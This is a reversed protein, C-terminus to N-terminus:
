TPVLVGTELVEVRGIVVTQEKFGTVEEPREAEFTQIGPPEYMLFRQYVNQFPFEVVHEGELNSFFEELSAPDYFDVEMGELKPIRDTVPVMDAHGARSDTRYDPTRLARHRSDVATGGPYASRDARVLQPHATTYALRASGTPVSPTLRRNAADGNLTLLLDGFRVHNPVLTFDTTPETPTWVTPVELDSSRGAVTVSTGTPAQYEAGFYRWVEAFGGHYEDYPEVKGRLTARATGTLARNYTRKADRLAQTNLNGYAHLPKHIIWEGGRVDKYAMVLRYFGAPPTFVMYRDVWASAKAEVGAAGYIGGEYGPPIWAEGEDNYLSVYFPKPAPHASTAESALPADDHKIWTAVTQQTLPKVNIERLIFGIDGLFSDEESVFVYGQNVEAGDPDKDDPVLEGSETARVNSLTWSVNAHTEIAQAYRGTWDIGTFIWMLDRSGTAGLRRYVALTGGPAGAGTAVMEVYVDSTSTLGTTIDRSQYLAGDAKYVSVHVAGAATLRAVALDQGATTTKIRLMDAAALASLQYRALVGLATRSGADVTVSGAVESSHLTTGTKYPVDKQKLPEVLPSTSVTSIPYGSTTVAVDDYDFTWKARPDNLHIGGYRVRLLLRNTLNLGSITRFARRTTNIGVLVTATAGSGGAGAIVIELDLLAGNAVNHGILVQPQALSGNANLVQFYLHSYGASAYQAIVRAVVTGAADLIDFVTVQTASYSPGRTFRVLVREALKTRTPTYDKYAYAAVWASTHDSRSRYVYAGNVTTAAVVESQINTNVINRFATFGPNLAGTEHNAFDLPPDSTVLQGAATPPAPGVVVVSGTPYPVAPDTTAEAYARSGKAPFVFKRPAGEFGHLALNYISMSLNRGNGSLYAMVRLDTGPTTTDYILDAGSGTPGVKLQFDVEGNAALTKTWTSANIQVGAADLQQLVVVGTGAQWDEVKMTGRFTEIRDTRIPMKESTAVPTNVATADAIAGGTILKLVGPTVAYGKGVAGTTTLTWNLPKGNRDTRRFTANPIRNIRAPLRMRAIQGTLLQVRVPPAMTLLRGGRVLAYTIYYWGPDPRGLGEAVPPEITGQPDEIGTSDEQPPDEPILVWNLGKPVIRTGAAPQVGEGDDRFGYMKPFPDKNRRANEIRSKPLPRAEYSSRTAELRYWQPVAVNDMQVYVEFGVASSTLDRPHFAICKGPRGGIPFSTVLGEGTATANAAIQAALADVALSTDGQEAPTRLKATAGGGFNLVYGKALDGALATVSLTTANIAATASATVTFKQRKEIRRTIGAIEETDSPPSALSINGVGDVECYAVRLKPMPQLDLAGDRISFDRRFVMKPPRGVKTENKTPLTRGSNDYPGPLVHDPKGNPVLAQLRASAQGGNVQSVFVGQWKCGPMKSLMTVRIRQGASTVSVAAFETHMTHRGDSTVGTIAVQYTGVEFGEVAADVIDVIPSDLTVNQRPDSLTKPPAAKIHPKNFLYVDQEAQVPAIEQRSLTHPGKNMQSMYPYFGDESLGTRLAWGPSSGDAEIQQFCFDPVSNDPTLVLNDNADVTLGDSITNSFWENARDIKDVPM